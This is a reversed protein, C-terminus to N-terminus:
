PSAKVAAQAERLEPGPDAAAWLRLFSRYAAISEERAGDKANVRALGLWARACRPERELAALFARRADDFRYVQLWLDGALRAVSFSPPLPAGAETLRQDLEDAQALALSIVEREEQAAAMAALVLSQYLRTETTARAELLDAAGRAISLLQPTGGPWAAHAAALGTGLLEVSTSSAVPRESSMPNRPEGGWDMAALNLWVESDRLEDDWASNRQPPLARRDLMSRAQAFRGALLAVHFESRDSVAQQLGLASV